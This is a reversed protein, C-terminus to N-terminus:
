QWDGWGDAQQESRNAGATGEEGTDLRGLRGMEPGVTAPSHGPTAAPATQHAPKGNAEGNGAWSGASTEPGDERGAEGEPGITGTKAGSPAATWAIHLVDRRAGQLTKRVTLKGRGADTTALLGKEKLRRRLTQATIAFSENQDRAFRQVAAFSADPELFLEGDALWGARTGQPKYRTDTGSAGTYYQEPRWGWRQPEHPENGHEDAVHAYGSAVAAWLLRLFLGAPEAAGIQAAQAAASEGLATWGREWLEARQRESVAGATRAFGLLYRLGLALDAVIGPTRAHQGDGRARDRLEALEGRLRGRIGDLQPALWRLFGALAQAYLGTAADRQCATLTPNTLPPVPGFDGPSIELVLLRARLSQGRPTDEGTSLVLGRPPKAPRLTADARMRQRGARNGQGRFLRDAEKHYRQVDAASGTPCFDDVVLLADKATFALGELANGTSSWSAPLHRADMGPGFHQQVLAAAESKYSGTPGTLHLAFDTDGLTARYVAALLPFTARDPGLSLLRLSAQVAAALDAGEPPHPLSFGALPEPLSVPIDSILGAPGVAGAAHLYHWQEAIKRWGIHRFVTRRPVDGSLLQLATRLHDRTGLGAYVVARTGWTPVMWEMRVFDAAPVEARPLAAGDALTGQMALFRTREAGDDHEVDEVIRATFNCLTVRVPGEKTLVNRYTCGGAEFYPPPDEGEGPAAPRRFPRLARDLDRVSVRERIAARVAAFGAPDAGALDALAQLLPKDRFLAEAGGADLVDQLGALEEPPPPEEGATAAALADRIASLANDGALVNPSQGATLLDDLGKGDAAAWRELEVAFGAAALADACGALARAVTPNDGADADFALRVTKCGLEKLVALCTRWSSVGPVSVTPLKTLAHVVDAKLEGETMRVLDAAEPTGAPCHVPAGPGPGGHGASSMYCYRSRGEGADDRRVKLAVIHGGRDRCPVILGAPGRLTLYRGSRGEKVVFGPVRLLKNEFPERLDRVIRPRGQSPLTRYGARDIAGDALGRAQLAERHAKSLTLRGLLASYVAHLTDADARKAEPAAPRPPLDAEPRPGHGLRHLYVKSGERGEKARFSGTETRM